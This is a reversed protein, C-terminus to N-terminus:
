YYSNLCVAISNLYVAIATIIHLRESSSICAKRMIIHVGKAHHYVLTGSSSICAKTTIIHLSEAQHYARRQRSSICVQRNSSICLSDGKIIFLPRFYNHLLHIAAAGRPDVKRDHITRVWARISPLATMLGHRFNCFARRFM